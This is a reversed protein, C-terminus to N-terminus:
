FSFIVDLRNGGLFVQVNKPNNTDETKSIARVSQWALFWGLASQSLFHMDDNIRSLATATSATIFLGKIWPNETMSGAALFPVAGVFAHGSLGTANEFPQWRSNETAPRASGILRQFIVMYPFGLLLARSSRTGWNGVINVFRPQNEWAFYDLLSCGTFIPLSYQWKGFPKVTKAIADSRPGRISRQYADGISKDIPTFSLLASSSLAISWIALSRLSYFDKLDYFVDKSFYRVNNDPNDEKAYTQVTTHLVLFLTIYLIKISKM